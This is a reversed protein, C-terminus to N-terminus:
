YYTGKQTNLLLSNVIKDAQGDIVKEGESCDFKKGCKDDREKDVKCMANKDLTELQHRRHPMHKSCQDLRWEGAVSVNDEQM